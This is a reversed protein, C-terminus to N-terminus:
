LGELRCLMDRRVVGLLYLHLGPVERNESVRFSQDVGPPWAPAGPGRTPTRVGVGAMGNQAVIVQVEFAACPELQPTDTRTALERARPFLSTLVAEVASASDGPLLTGQATAVVLRALAVRQLDPGDARGRAVRDHSAGALRRYTAGSKEDGSNTLAQRGWESSAEDSVALAARVVDLSVEAAYEALYKPPAQPDDGPALYNVIRM